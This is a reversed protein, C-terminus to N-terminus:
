GPLSNQTLELFAFDQGMAGAIKCIKFINDAWNKERSVNDKLKNKFM